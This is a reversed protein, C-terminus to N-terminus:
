PRIFKKSLNKQHAVMGIVVIKINRHMAAHNKNISMNEVVSKFYLYKAGESLASPIGAWKTYKWAVNQRGNPAVFNSNFECLKEPHNLIYLASKNWREMIKCFGPWTYSSKWQDNISKAISAGNSDIICPFTYFSRKKLRYNIGYSASTSIISSNSVITYRLFM